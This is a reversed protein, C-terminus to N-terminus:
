KTLKLTAKGSMLDDTLDGFFDGLGFDSDDGMDDESETEDEMEETYSFELKNTQNVDNIYIVEEFDDDFALENDSNISWTFPYEDDGEEGEVEEEEDFGDPLEVEEVIALGTGDENFTMKGIEKFEMGFFISVREYNWTGIIREEISVDDDGEVEGETEGEVEVETDGETEGVTEGEVEGETDGETDGEEEGEKSSDSTKIGSNSKSFASGYCTGDDVVASSNFNRATPDTCGTEKKCGFIMAIISLILIIKKM